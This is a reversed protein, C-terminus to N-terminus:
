EHKIIANYIRLDRANTEAIDVASLAYYLFRALLNAANIEVGSISRSLHSGAVM